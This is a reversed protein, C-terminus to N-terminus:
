KRLTENLNIWFNMAYKALMVMLHAWLPRQCHSINHENSPVDTFRDKDQDKNLLGEIVDFYLESGLFWSPISIFYIKVDTDAAFASLKKKKKSKWIGCGLSQWTKMM